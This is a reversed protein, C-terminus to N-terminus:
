VGGPATLLGTPPASAPGRIALRPACRSRPAPAPVPARSRAPRARSPPSARIAADGGPSGRRPGLGDTPAAEAGQSSGPRPGPSPASHTGARGRSRRRLQAFTVLFGRGRRASRSSRGKGGLGWSAPIRALQPRRPCCARRRAEEQLVAIAM